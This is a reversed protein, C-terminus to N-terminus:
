DSSPAAVSAPKVSLFIDFTSRWFPDEPDKQLVLPTVVGQRMQPHNPLYPDNAFFQMMFLPQSDRYSVLYNLHAPLNQCGVRVSGPKITSFEYRGDMDTITKARLRHPGTGYQGQSDAQWVEVLAGPLPTQRDDAYVTGSVILREGPMGAPALQETLPVDDADPRVGTHYPTAICDSRTVLQPEAPPELPLVLDFRGELWSEGVPGTRTLTVLNDSDVTLDPDRTIREFFVVTNLSESGDPFTVRFHIHPPRSPSGPPKITTFEYRGAMDTRMQAALTRPGAEVGGNARNQWVEILTGPLPTTCDSAYVTGHLVLRQGPESPPALTTTVPADPEYGYSSGGVTLRCDTEALETADVHPTDTVAPTDTPLPKIDVDVRGTFFVSIVVLGGLAFGYFLITKLEKVIRDREM